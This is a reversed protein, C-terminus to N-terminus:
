VLKLRLKRYERWEYSYAHESALHDFHGALQAKQRPAIDAQRLARALRSRLYGSYSGIYNLLIYNVAIENCANDGARIGDAVKRLVARYKLWAHRETMWEPAHWTGIEIDAIPYTGRM